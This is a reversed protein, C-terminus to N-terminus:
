SRLVASPSTKSARLAPIMTALSALLAVVLTAGILIMPDSASVEYLRSAVFRGAAYSGVLGIVTGVLTLVQGEKLVLWFVNRPSAGLALRTAVEGSRQSTAYAIVGYIGVAALALATAGFVLMLMMGLEQRLLTAGALTSMSAFEVPMQSDVSRVIDRISQQLGASDGGRAHVVVTRRRAPFQADVNYFCPEGPTNLAIQRVDEVVGIIESESQPNIEPYGWRFKMGIPDRGKLYRSVFTQNVLVRAPTVGQRDDANFDRGATLKTGAATLYGQSIIRQRSGLPNNQDMPEGNFEILLSAEPVRKLPLQATAGAAVVGSVNRIRALLDEAAANVQQGNQYRPGQFVADFVIRDTAVFGPSVARLNDFSRVLWGAGAVLTVGLAIEAVTLASLWRGTARGATASRGSENMLARLDSRALRLAPAFGVILGSVILTGLAFLLVNRDFSITHLRPLESAGAALLLRVGAYAVALGAVAGATALVISETLLQRVLRGRGAGLSVRVAMEQARSAGRALLLNTVNVCALVLLLATASLVVVLIAKLDGVEQEVLPRFEFIRSRVSEAFDKRISTIVQDGEARLREPTAGPKVRLYGEFSHGVGNPDWRQSFWYDADHPTDFDPHAVGVISTSVELFRLPKGVIAPDSGFMDRWIRHSIIIVPPGNGQYHEPKFGSGHTMQLGFLEFFGESVGYAAAPRPTGDDGLLTLQAPQLGVAKVISPALAPDNLRILEVPSLLGTTVRGDTLSTRAAYIGDPNPYPLPKLLAANVTSFIATTAGIGLALTGIAAAAFGPSRKLGRLAFQIDQWFTNM